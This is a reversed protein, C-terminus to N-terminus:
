PDDEEYDDDDDPDWELIVAIVCVSCIKPLKMPRGLRVQRENASKVEDVFIPRDCRACRHSIEFESM